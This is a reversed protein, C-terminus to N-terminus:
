ANNITLDTIFDLCEKYNQQQHYNNSTRINSGYKNLM